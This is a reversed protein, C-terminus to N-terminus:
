FIREKPRQCDLLHIRYNIQQHISFNYVYKPPIIVGNVLIDKHNYFISGTPKLVRLCERLVETQWAEYADQPMDDSYTDYAIQRGRMASWFGSTGKDTAYANKNYPPSTVILDVSDSELRRLTNM